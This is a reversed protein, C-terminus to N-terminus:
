KQLSYNYQFVSLDPKHKRKRKLEYEYITKGLNKFFPYGLKDYDYNDDNFIGDSNCYIVASLMFEINNKFDAFYCSEILFGYATGTKGFIRIAPDPKTKESGYFVFKVYNDWFESTDYKPSFSEGPTMSMYLRLFDYDEETLNFRKIEEVAGPFMVARIMDHLDKLLLRNKKSFDFPANVLKDGQLYGAGMKTDRSSYVLKSVEAPKAYVLKNSVPDYFSVPNTHRNQEETLSISLRHILQTNTYGMKHLSNNIYEQGLFEFLRNFADNDSVLLIKKIYHAITPKTGPATSDTLVETQEPSSKGTIMTAYKSIHLENLRQLALVAVPFKVTSAPYFYRNPDHNYFYDTFAPAQKKNRDIRTYIIQIGYDDKRKMLDGFWVPKSAMLKELLNAPPTEKAVIISSMDVPNSTDSNVPKGFPVLATSVINLLFLVPLM